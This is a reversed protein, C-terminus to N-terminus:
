ILMVKLRKQPTIGGVFFKNFPEGSNHKFFLLTVMNALCIKLLGIASHTGNTTSAKGRSKIQGMFPSIRSIRSIKASALSASLATTEQSNKGVFVGSPLRLKNSFVIGRSLTNWGENQETVYPAPPLVRSLVSSMTSFIWRSCPRGEIACRVHTPDLRSSISLNRM